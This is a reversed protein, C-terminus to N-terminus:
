QPPAFSAAANAVEKAAAKNPPTFHLNLGYEPLQMESVYSGQTSRDLVIRNIDSLRAQDTDNVLLIFGARVGDMKTLTLVGTAGSGGFTFRYTGAPVVANQWRVVHPLTFQGRAEEQASALQSGGIASLTLLGAYLFKRFSTM